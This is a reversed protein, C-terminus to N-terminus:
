QVSADVDVFEAPIKPVVVDALSGGVQLPPAAAVFVGECFRGLRKM